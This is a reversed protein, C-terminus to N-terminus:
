KLVDGSGVSFAPDAVFVAKGAGHLRYLATIRDLAVRAEPSEPFHNRVAQFEEMAPFPQGLLALLQGLELQAAPAADSSPYELSVRRQAELAEELKGAKRFVLGRAQLAKPVWYDSLPYLTMLRSFQAQADELEAPGNARGLTMMGLYYYAGPASDS